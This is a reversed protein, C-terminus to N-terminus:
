EVLYTVCLQLIAHYSYRMSLDHYMHLYRLLQIM